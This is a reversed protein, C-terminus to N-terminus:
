PPYPNCIHPRTFTMIKISIKECQFTTQYGVIKEHCKLPNLITKFVMDKEKIFYLWVFYQCSSCQFSAIVSTLCFFLVLLFAEQLFYHLPSLKEKLCCIISALKQFSFFIPYALILRVVLKLMFLLRNKKLLGPTIVHINGSYTYCISFAYLQAM